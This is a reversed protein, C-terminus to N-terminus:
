AGSNVNVEHHHPLTCSQILSYLLTFCSLVSGSKVFPPPAVFVVNSSFNLYHSADDQFLFNMWSGDPIGPDMDSFCNHHATNWAGCGWYRTDCAHM